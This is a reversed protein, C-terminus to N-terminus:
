AVQQEDDYLLSGDDRRAALGVATVVVKEMSGDGGGRGDDDDDNHFSCTAELGDLFVRYSQGACKQKRYVSRPDARLLQLLAAEADDPRGDYFRLAGDVAGIEGGVDGGGDGVRRGSRSCVSRLQERARSTMEVRLRPHAGRGVWEPARVPGDVGSLASPSDAYPIYPKIDLIPTGDILDAGRLHLTDGEVRELAVLSLGIPNPRHPTRCAFLGTQAGDLRPPKVKAKVVELGGRNQDFIFILWVHSFAALGDLTHSPCTGWCVRLRSAASPALGPQRPTGNRHSFCSELRGIPSVGFGMLRADNSSSSSANSKTHSKAGHGSTTTSAPAVVAAGSSAEAAAHVVATTNAVLNGAAALADRRTAALEKQVTRGIQNLQRHLKSIESRCARQTSVIQNMTQRSTQLNASHANAGTQRASSVKGGCDDDSRGGTHEAKVGAMCRLAEVFSDASSFAHTLAVTSGDALRATLSLDVPGHALLQQSPGDGEDNRQEALFSTLTLSSSTGDMTTSHIAKSTHATSHTTPQCRARSGSQLRTQLRVRAFAGGPRGLLVCVLDNM